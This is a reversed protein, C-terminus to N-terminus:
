DRKIVLKRMQLIFIIPIVARFRLFSVSLVHLHWVHLTLLLVQYVM